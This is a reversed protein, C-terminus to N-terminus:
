FQLGAERAADLVAAVDFRSGNNACADSLFRFGGADVGYRKITGTETVVTTDLCQGISGAFRSQLELSNCM